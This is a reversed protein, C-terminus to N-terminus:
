IKENMKQMDNHLVFEHFIYNTTNNKQLESVILDNKSIIAALIASIKKVIKIEFCPHNIFM